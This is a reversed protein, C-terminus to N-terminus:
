YTAIRGRCAARLDEEALTAGDRLKIWAMVEEGYRDSPVGIVQVDSVEALGHLFDEIERPAPPHRVGRLPKDRSRGATLLGDQHRDRRGGRPRARRM